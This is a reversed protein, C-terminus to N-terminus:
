SRQEVGVGVLVDFCLRRQLLLMLLLFRPRRNRISICDLAPNYPLYYTYVVESNPTRPM